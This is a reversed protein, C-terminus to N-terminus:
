VSGSVLTAKVPSGVSVPTAGVTALVSTGASVRDGKSVLVCLDRRQPIVVDVQSGLRISGIRQGLGVEDGDGVYSAIQRVLRSAIQVVAVELKSGAILTTTRENQFVMEPRRLSGFRGPFHRSSVVVGAIPARNVHVDLFSMAIGVVVADREHLATHTLEELAVHEGHKSAVPLQGDHSRKVYVIEGDAPSVVVGDGEPPTREPDRYFRYALIAAAGVVTFAAGLLGRAWTPLRAPGGIALVVAGAFTAIAGLGVICRRMGLQWKWALPLMAVAAVLGGAWAVAAPTM